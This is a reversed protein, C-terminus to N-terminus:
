SVCIEYFWPSQHIMLIACYFWFFMNNNVVMQNRLMAM